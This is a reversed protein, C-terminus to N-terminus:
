PKRRPDIAILGAASQSPSPQSPADPSCTYEPSSPDFDAARTCSYTIGAPDTFTWGAPPQGAAGDTGDKGDAGAPGTPGQPGAPGEVGAVGQAGTPGPSGAPGTAGTAGPAGSPGAVGQAGTAGPAGPVGQVISRAPPASPTVGHQELQHRTTDLGDALKTIVTDRSRQGAEMSQIHVEMTHIAWAIGALAVFLVITGAAKVALATRHGVQPPKPASM